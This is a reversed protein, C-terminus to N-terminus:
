RKVQQSLSRFYKQIESRYQPPIETVQGSRLGLQMQQISQLLRPNLEPASRGVKHSKATEGKRKRSVEKKRLSKSSDLLRTLIEKQKDIVKQDLNGRQLESEVRKMEESVPRLDGLVNSLDGMLEALRETADRIM